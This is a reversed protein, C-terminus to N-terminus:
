ANKKISEKLLNFNKKQEDKDRIYYNFNLFLLYSLMRNYYDLEIDEIMSLIEKKFTNKDKSESIARGLRGISGHYHGEAPNQIELMIGLLLDPVNINLAELEKIYTKRQAQAYNSNSNRQVNDNMINLHSKLFVEWNMTEASLIAMNMAQERPRSDLSCDGIIITSRMKELLKVKENEPMTELNISLDIWEDQKANKFFISTATDILCDSYSIKVCYKNGLLISEFEKPFFFAKISEKSFESKEEYEYIWSNKLPKFYPQDEEFKHIYRGPYCDFCQEVFRNLGRGFLNTDKFKVILVNKNVDANPYKNLFEEFSIGNDIDIKAQKINSTDLSISHGITQYKSHFVKNLDCRRYKLNLSDVVHKLKKITSESYILGNKYTKFESQGYLRFSCLFLIALFTSRSM